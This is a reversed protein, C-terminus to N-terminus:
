SFSVICYRSRLSRISRLVVLKVGLQTECGTTRERYQVDPEFSVLGAIIVELTDEHKGERTYQSVVLSWLHFALM